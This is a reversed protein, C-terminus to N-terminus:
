RSMWVVALIIFLTFLGQGITLDLWNWTEPGYAEICGDTKVLVLKCFGQHFWSGGDSIIERFTM